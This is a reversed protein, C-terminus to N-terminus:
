SEKEKERRDRVLPGPAPIAKDAVGVCKRVRIGSERQKKRQVCALTAALDVLKSVLMTRVLLPAPRLPNANSLAVALTQLSTPPTVVLMMTRSKSRASPGCVSAPELHNHIAEGQKSPTTSSLARRLFSSVYGSSPGPLLARRTPMSTPPRMDVSVMENRFWHCLCPGSLFSCVHYSPDFLLLAHPPAVNQGAGRAPSNGRGQQIQASRMPATAVCRWRMLHLPVLPISAQDRSWPTMHARTVTKVKTLM